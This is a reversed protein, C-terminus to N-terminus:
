RKLFLGDDTGIWLWILRTWLEM